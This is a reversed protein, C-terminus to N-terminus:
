RVIDVRFEPSSGSATAAAAQWLADLVVAARPTHFSIQNYFGLGFDTRFRVGIQPDIGGSTRIADFDRNTCGHWLILYQSPEEASTPDSWLPAPDVLPAVTSGTSM